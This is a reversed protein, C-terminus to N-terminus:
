SFDSYNRLLPGVVLRSRAGPWKPGADWRKPKSTIPHRDHKLPKQSHLTSAANYRARAVRTLRDQRAERPSRIKIERYSESLFLNHRTDGSRAVPLGETPSTPHDPSAGWLPIGRDPSVRWLLPQVYRMLLNLHT